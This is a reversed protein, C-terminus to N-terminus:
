RFVAVVAREGKTGRGICFYHPVSLEVRWIRSYAGGGDGEVLVLGGPMARKWPMAPCLGHRMSCGNRFWLFRVQQLMSECRGDWFSDLMRLRTELSPCIGFGSVTACHDIFAALYGECKRAGDAFVDRLVPKNYFWDLVRALRDAMRLDDLSMDPTELVEYPPLVSAALGWKGPAEAFPTGPLLKLRELQIEAVRTQMLTEVDALLGALTQGPLGAMLDAHLEINSMTVLREVGELTQRATARRQIVSHVCRELSQVGVELHLTGPPALRIADAIEVSMLGPDIELHFLLEPFEERFLRLLELSRRNVLNFTRDILRVSQVGADRVAKLEAVIRDLSKYRVGTRRSTCFLCGNPCGRSTEMQVFPRSFGTLMAPYFNPIADLTGVVVSTGNDVYIGAVMGCVGPIDTWAAPNRLSALLRSFPIEGEGRVAIDVMGPVLTRNDGLCEPGGGVLLCGPLLTRLRGLVAHIFVRNFLYLTTAVVNPNTELIRDLVALPDDNVTADVQRWVVKDADIMSRLCWAALSSHSYSSNVALFTVTVEGTGSAAEGREQQCSEM